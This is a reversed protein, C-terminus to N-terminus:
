RVPSNISGAPSPARSYLVPIQTSGAMGTSSWAGTSLQARLGHGNSADVRGRAAHQVQNLACDALMPLHQVQEIECRLAPRPDQWGPEIGLVDNGQVSVVAGVLLEVRLKLSVSIEGQQRLALEVGTTGVRSMPSSCGADSPLTRCAPMSRADGPVACLHPADLCHHLRQDVVDPTQDFMALPQEEPQADVVAPGLGERPSMNLQDRYTCLATVTPVSVEGIEFIARLAHQTTPLVLLAMAAIRKPTSMRVSCRTRLGRRLTILVRTRM